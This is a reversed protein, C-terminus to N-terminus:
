EDELGELKAPLFSLQFACLNDGQSPHTKNRIGREPLMKAVTKRPPVSFMRASAFCGQHKMQPVIKHARCSDVVGPRRSRPDISEGGIGGLERIAANQAAARGGGGGDAHRQALLDRRLQDRQDLLM